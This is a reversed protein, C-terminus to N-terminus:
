AHNMMNLYQAAVSFAQECQKQVAKQFIDHTDIQIVNEVHTETEKSMMQQPTTPFMSMDM